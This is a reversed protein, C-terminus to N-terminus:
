DVPNIPHLFPVSRTSGGLLVWHRAVAARSANIPIENTINKWWM